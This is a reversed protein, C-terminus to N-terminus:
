FLSLRQFISLHEMVYEVISQTSLRCVLVQQLLAPSFSMVASIDMHPLSDRLSVLKQATKPVDRLLDALLDYQLTAM